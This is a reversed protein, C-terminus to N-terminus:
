SAGLTDHSHLFGLCIHVHELALLIIGNCKLFGPAAGCRRSVLVPFFQASSDFRWSIWPEPDLGTISGFLM